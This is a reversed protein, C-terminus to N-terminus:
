TIRANGTKHKAMKGAVTAWAIRQHWRGEGQGPIAVEPDGPHEEGQSVRVAGDSDSHRLEWLLSTVAPLEATSPREVPRFM